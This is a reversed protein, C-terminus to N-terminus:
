ALLASLGQEEFSGEYDSIEISPKVSFDGVPLCVSRGKHILGIAADNQLQIPEGHPLKGTGTGTNQMRILPPPTSESFLDRGSEARERDEKREANRLKEEMYRKIRTTIVIM